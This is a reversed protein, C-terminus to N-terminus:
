KVPLLLGEVVHEAPAPDDDDPELTLVYYDHDTLDKSSAYLDTYKGTSLKGVRGTSLVDMSEGRRVLWGEYFFGNELAPLSDFVVYSFYEGDVFGARAVGSTSGGSVDSLNGEHSFAFDDVSSVMSSTVTKKSSDSSLASGMDMPTSSDKEEASGDVVSEGDVSDDVVDETLVSISPRNNIEVQESMYDRGLFWYFIGGVIVFVALFISLFLIGAYGSRYTSHNM